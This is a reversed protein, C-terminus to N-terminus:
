PLLVCQLHQSGSWQAGPALHIPHSIAAAEVCLMKQEGGFEFDPLRVAADPGPNWVVADSFGPQRIELRQHAQELTLLDPVNCYIRDTEGHIQLYAAHEACHDQALLSDRYLCDQLGHLRTQSVDNVALYTHLASTFQFATDGTNQVTLTVQLQRALVQVRLTAQFVYPWITLRAINEKLHFEVVATGDNQLFPTDAQWLTTRAFGHKPLSGLGAFQPFIVPIGGRIAVGEKFETKQSLFLQESGQAPIWSCVHAGLPSIKATAGDASRLHIFEM